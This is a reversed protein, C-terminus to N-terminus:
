LTCPLSAKAKQVSPWLPAPDRQNLPNISKYARMAGFKLLLRAGPNAALQAALTRKM